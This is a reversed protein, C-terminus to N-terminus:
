ENQGGRWRSRGIPPAASSPARNPASKPVLYWLRGPSKMAGAYLKAEAGRGWFLDLRGGGTIAGGIDQDLVFRSTLDAGVPIGTEPSDFRPRPFELFALAGKPFFRRDTAITRGDTAPVGLFTLASEESKRFFVYSPNMNLYKQMEERSLKRLYAEITHLNLQEPPIADKLFKGVPEYPQGNKEAYNLRFRKGNEFEVTASGQIHLIFADVPDVWCLELKRGDLAKQSDIQERTFYPLISRGQLRGRLKRDESYKQDFGSLDLTLLDDPVSYLPQSFKETKRLSGPIVPEYYSTIFVEGWRGNGYVEHFEFEQEIARFFEATLGHARALEAFRRLGRIYNAKEVIRLGFVFQRHNQSKELFSAQGEIAEILPQLPLDDRLAPVAAPRLADEQRKLPARVCSSLVLLAIATSFVQLLRM